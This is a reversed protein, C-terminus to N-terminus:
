PVEEAPGDQGAPAPDPVEIIQVGLEQACYRVDASAHDTVVTPVLPLHTFGDRALMARYALANGLASARAMPRVEIVWAADDLLALADIKMATQYQWGLRYSEDGMEPSLVVGGLAVDYAVGRLQLAYQDLFREWLPADNKAMHRYRGTKVPHVIHPPYVPM